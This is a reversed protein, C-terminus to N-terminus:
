GGIQILNEFGGIEGEPTFRIQDGGFVSLHRLCKGTVHIQIRNPIKPRRALGFDNFFGGCGVEFASPDVVTESRSQSSEM